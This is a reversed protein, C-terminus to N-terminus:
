EQNMLLGYSGCIVENKCLLVDIPVEKVEAEGLIDGSPLTLFHTDLSIM